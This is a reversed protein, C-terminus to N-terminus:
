QPVSVAVLAWAIYILVLIAVGGLAEVAIEFLEQVRKKRNNKKM